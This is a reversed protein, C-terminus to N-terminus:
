PRDAVGPSAYAAPASRSTTPRVTVAAASRLAAAAASIADMTEQPRCLHGQRNGGNVM